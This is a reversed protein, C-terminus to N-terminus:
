RDSKQALHQELHKTHSLGSLGRYGELYSSQGLDWLEALCLRSKFGPLRTGSSMATVQQVSHGRLNM